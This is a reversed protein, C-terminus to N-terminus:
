LSCCDAAKCNYTSAILYSSPETHVLANADGAPGNGEGSLRELLECHVSYGKNLEVFSRIRGCSQDRLM